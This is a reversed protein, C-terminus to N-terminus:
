VRPQTRGVRQSLLPAFILWSRLRLQCTFKALYCTGTSSGANAMFVLDVNRRAAHLLLEHLRRVHEYHVEGALLIKSSRLYSVM